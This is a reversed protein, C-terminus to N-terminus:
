SYEGRRLRVHGLRALLELLGGLSCVVPGAVSRAPELVRGHVRGVAADLAPHTAIQHRMAQHGLLIPVHIKVVVRPAHTPVPKIELVIIASVVVVVTASEYVTVTIMPTM